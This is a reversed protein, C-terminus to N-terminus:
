SSKIFFVADQISYGLYGKPCPFDRWVSFPLYSWIELEKKNKEGWVRSYGFKQKQVYMISVHKEFLPQKLPPDIPKLSTIIKLVHLVINQVFLSSIQLLKLCGDQSIVSLRCEFTLVNQLFSFFKQVLLGAFLCSKPNWSIKNLSAFSVM